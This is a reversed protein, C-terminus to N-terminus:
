WRKGEEEYGKGTGNSLNLRSEGGQRGNNNGNEGDGRKETGNMDGTDVAEWVDQDKNGTFFSTM